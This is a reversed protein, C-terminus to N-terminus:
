TSNIVGGRQQHFSELTQYMVRPMDLRALQKFRFARVAKGERLKHGPWVITVDSAFFWTRIVTREFPSYYDTCWLDSYEAAEISLEEYVERKITQLPTEGIKIKGGFLSWQGAAAITPKNDRLQLIYNGDLILIAHASQIKPVQLAPEMSRSPLLGSTTM